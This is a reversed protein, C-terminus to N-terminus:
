TRSLIEEPFGMSRAAEIAMSPAHDPQMRYSYKLKGNQVEYYFHHPHVLLIKAAELAFVVRHNHTALMLMHNSQLFESIVAYTLSEQYAPSTTSFAEDVAAFVMQKTELLPLIKNWYNMEQSFSSLDQKQVEAVRDLYVVSDFMPMNAYDAPAYGTAMAMLISITTAKEYFTKGSGNPGTLVCVREDQPNMVVNNTVEKKKEKFVSYMNQFEVEGTTNFIVPTLDSERIIHAFLCLADLHLMTHTFEQRPAEFTTTDRLYRKYGIVWEEITDAASRLTYSPYLRLEQILRQAYGFESHLRRLAYPFGGSTYELLQSLEWLDSNDHQDKKQRKLSDGRIHRQFRELIRLEEGVPIRWLDRLTIPPVHRELTQIRRYLKTYARMQDHSLLDKLHLNKKGEHEKLLSVCDSYLASTDALLHSVVPEQGLLKKEIKLFAIGAELTDATIYMPLNQKGESPTANIFPNLATHLGFTHSKMVERFTNVLSGSKEILTHINLYGDGVALERFMDQRALIQERTTGNNFFTMRALEAFLHSRRHIKFSFMGRERVLNRFVNNGEFEPDESLFHFISQDGDAPFLNELPEVSEGSGEHATIERKYVPPFWVSPPVGIGDYYQRATELVGASFKCAKAAAFAYSDGAGPLLKFHRILGGHEDFDVALHYVTVIESAAEASALIADNHTSLMVSGGIDAIGSATAILLRAQDEPSTTSYGEDIYVRSRNHINPLVTKWNEIDQMFASLDRSADTSPRDINVFQHFIPLNGNEIPAFGLTQATLHIMLDSRMAFSKGSTNAGSLVIIPADKTSNNAVQDEKRRELNWGGTYGYPKRNDFTVKGWGDDRIKKAFELSSGLAYLYPEIKDELLRWIEKEPHFYEQSDPGIYLSVKSTIDDIYSPLDVLIEGLAAVHNKEYLAQLSQLGATILDSAANIMEPINLKEEEDNFELPDPPVTYIEVGQDFLDILTFEPNDGRYVCLERVGEIVKYAQNKLTLLEDLQDSAVLEILVKQRSRIHARDILPEFLMGAMHEAEWTRIRVMEDSQGKNQRFNESREEEERNIFYMVTRYDGAVYREEALLSRHPVRSKSFISAFDHKLKRLDM